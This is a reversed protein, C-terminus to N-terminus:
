NDSNTELHVARTKCLTEKRRDQGPPKEEEEIRRKRRIRKGTWL